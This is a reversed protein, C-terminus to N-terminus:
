PAFGKTGNPQYVWDFTVETRLVYAGRQVDELTVVVDRILIKAFHRAPTQVIWIQGRQVTDAGVDYGSDPASLLRNFEAEAAESDPNHSVFRFARRVLTDGPSWLYTMSPSSSGTVIEALTDTVSGSFRINERRTFNFGIQERYAYMSPTSVLLDTITARGYPLEDVPAFTSQVCGSFVFLLVFLQSRM